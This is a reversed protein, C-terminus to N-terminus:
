SAHIRLFRFRASTDSQRMVQEFREVASRNKAVYDASAFWGSIMFRRAIGDFVPAIVRASGSNLAEALAPNLVAAADIRRQTLASKFFVGSVNQTESM